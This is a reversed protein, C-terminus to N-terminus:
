IDVTNGKVICYYRTDYRKGDIFQSKIKSKLIYGYFKTLGKLVTLGYTKTGKRTFYNLNDGPNINYQILKHKHKEIYKEGDLKAIVDRSIEFDIINSVRDCKLTDCILNLFYLLRDDNSELNQDMSKIKQYMISVSIDTFYDWKEKPINLENLMDEKTKQIENSM